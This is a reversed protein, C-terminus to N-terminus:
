SDQRQVLPCHTSPGQIPWEATGATASKGSVTPFEIRTAKLCTQWRPLDCIPLAVASLVLRFGQAGM